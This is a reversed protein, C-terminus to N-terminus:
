GAFAPYFQEGTKSSPSNDTHVRTILERRRRRVAVLARQRCRFVRNRTLPWQALGLRRLFAVRPYITTIIRNM